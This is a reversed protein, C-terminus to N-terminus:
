LLDSPGVVSTLRSQATPVIRQYRQRNTRRRGLLDDTMLDLDSTGLTVDVTEIPGGLLESAYEAAAQQAAATAMQDAMSQVQMNTSYTQMDAQKKIAAAQQQAARKASGGGFAEGM